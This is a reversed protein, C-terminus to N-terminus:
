STILIIYTVKKSIDKGFEKLLPRSTKVREKIHVAATEKLTKNTM